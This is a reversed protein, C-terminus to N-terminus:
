KNFERGDMNNGPPYIKIQNTDNGKMVKDCNVVVM